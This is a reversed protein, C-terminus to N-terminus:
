RGSWRTPDIPADCAVVRAFRKSKLLAAMRRMIRRREPCFARTALACCRRSCRLIADLQGVAFELGHKAFKARPTAAVKRANHDRTPFALFFVMIEKSSQMAILPRSSFTTSAIASCSPIGSIEAAAQCRHTDQRGPQIDEANALVLKPDRARTRQM